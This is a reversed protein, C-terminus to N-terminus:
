GQSKFVSIRAVLGSLYQNRRHPWREPEAGRVVVMRLVGTINAVSVAARVSTIKQVLECCELPLYIEGSVRALSEAWPRQHWWGYDEIFRFSAYADGEKQHGSWCKNKLGIL